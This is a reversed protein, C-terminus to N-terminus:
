KATIIHYARRNRQWCAETEESCVPQVEGKSVTMMRDAPVALSM